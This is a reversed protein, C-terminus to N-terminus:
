AAAQADSKNYLTNFGVNLAELAYARAADATVVTKSLNPVFSHKLDSDAVEMGLSILRELTETLTFDDSGRSSYLRQYALIQDFFSKKARFRILETKNERNM